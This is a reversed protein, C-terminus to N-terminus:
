RKRAVVLASSSARRARARTAARSPTGTSSTSGGRQTSGPEGGVIDEAADNQPSSPMESGAPTVRSSTRRATSCPASTRSSVSPSASSLSTRTAQTRRAPRGSDRGRAVADVKGDPGEATLEDVGAGISPRGCFSGITKSASVSKWKRRTAGVPEPQRHRLRRRSPADRPLRRDSRWPGARADRRAAIRRRPPGWKAPGPGAEVVHGRVRMGIMPQDRRRGRDRM